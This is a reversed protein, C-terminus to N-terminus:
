NYTYYLEKGNQNDECVLPPPLGEFYLLMENEQFVIQCKSTKMEATNIDQVSVEKRHRSIRTYGEM